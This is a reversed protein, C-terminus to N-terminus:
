ADSYVRDRAAVLVIKNATSRTITATARVYQATGQGIAVAVVAADTGATRGGQTNSDYAFTFSVVADGSVDGTINASSADQVLIAGSTGFEDGSSSTGAPDAFYLWYKANTDAQLTESFEITGAATYPFTRESGGVDTFVLRNIDASQYDDVFVGTYTYLTDGVFRLLLDATKGTVSGSGADIDGSQRLQYQVFSYIQEATGGNGDIIVNYAYYSTGVQREGTYAAWPAGGDTPENSSSSTHGSTCIYWRGSFSVVANLAYSVGSSWAAFGTGALYTISMGTYPASGAITADNAAVKTDTANALAFTYRRYDLSTVGIDTLSAQAYTKGQERAFLKRFSRTNSSPSTDYIKVAQNVAGTLQFNTSSGGSVSQFYVQDSSGLTGLTVICAWEEQSVGSSDRVCWGGDRILYRTTDDYWDWNSVLDMKEETIPDFPFPIKPLTSDTRLAKVYKSYIAYLVVGDNSLNGTPVLRITRAAPNSYDLIMETGLNLLDPDTIKAM